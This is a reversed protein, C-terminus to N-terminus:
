RSAKAWGCRGLAAAAFFRHDLAGSQRPLAAAMVVGLDVEWRQGALLCEEDGVEEVADDVGEPASVAVGHGVEQAAAVGVVGEGLFLLLLVRRRAFWPVLVVEESRERRAALGLSLRM